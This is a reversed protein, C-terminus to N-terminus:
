LRPVYREGRLAARVLRVQREVRELRRAARELAGVAADVVEPPVDARLEVRLRGLGDRIGASAAAVHLEAFAALVLPHRRLVDHERYDPPTQDFLWGTASRQWDPAGPPRVQEPWDPPV